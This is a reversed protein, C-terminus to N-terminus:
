GAAAAARLKLWFRLLGLACNAAEDETMRVITAALKGEDGKPERYSVATLLGIYEQRLDGEPLQTEPVSVIEFWAAQLRDNVPGHGTALLEIAVNFPEIPIIPMAM